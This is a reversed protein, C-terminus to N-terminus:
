RGMRELREALRAGGAQEDAVVLLTDDGAVTGVTGELGAADIAAAVVQAAGPPTHVVVLNGSYGIAVAFESLARALNAQGEGDPGSTDLVYGDESKVAGLDRLDRSVTAQTVEFGEAALLRVLETQSRVPHRHLLTRIQRHRAATGPM